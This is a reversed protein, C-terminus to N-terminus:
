LSRVLEKATKMKELLIATQFSHNNNRVMVPQEKGSLPSSGEVELNSTVFHKSTKREIWNLWDPLCLLRRCVCYDEVCLIRVQATM